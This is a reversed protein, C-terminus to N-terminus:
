AQRPRGREARALDGPTNVNLLLLGDPDFTEIEAPGIERVRLEGLLDLMKLEGAGLRRRIPEVCSRAYCACLPHYGDEGHPVAADADQGVELVRTLFAATLFPMDCAVVLVPGESISLATYVSGLKGTGPVLDPVVPLGTRAFAASEDAVIVVRDVVVHLAELQRDLITRGGIVIQSKDRGGLRRAHGGALIAATTM